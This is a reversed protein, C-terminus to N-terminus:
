SVAEWLAPYKTVFGAASVELFAAYDFRPAEYWYEGATRREYRQELMDLSGATVDLWAVPVNAAQGVQLAVRRLQFLNTAPTFGLDLDVCGDLGPVVQGALTWAGAPTRVVVLDVPRTGLWGRVAGQRTRWGADCDVQYALCAPMGDHQFVAAGDLRWGDHYQVLRCADHGDADLRRWLIADTASHEAATSTDWATDRQGDRPSLKRAYRRSTREFGLREYFAHADTRREHTTVELLGCGAAALTAEAAEVLARGIGQGRVHEMVALATLRGVPQPRHMVRMVHLTAFALPQSDRCAVLVMDARSSMAALREQVEEPGSPPYGLDGMLRALVPADAPVARRIQLHM